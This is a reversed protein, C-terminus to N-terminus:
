LATSALHREVDKVAPKLRKIKRRPERSTFRRPLDGIPVNAAVFDAFEGRPLPASGDRTYFRLLQEVDALQSPLYRGHLDIFDRLLTDRLEVRLKPFGRGEWGQVFGDLTQRATDNLMGNTVLVARHHPDRAVGPFQIPVEVLEVLEAHIKRLASLDI